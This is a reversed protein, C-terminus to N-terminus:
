MGRGMNGTQTGSAVNAREVSRQLWQQVFVNKQMETLGTAKSLFAAVGRQRYLQARQDDVLALAESLFLNNFIDAYQSPLPDWSYNAAYGSSTAEVVGAANAVTLVTATCSVVTFSGNNLANTCNTIVATSGVPFSITDFTGTYATNGAVAAAVSTINFPGFMPSLKQYTVTVTYIKDPVGLFRFTYNLVSAVISSLEVSVASPRQQFSSKALASNNYVDKIEYVNGDDDTLSVKEVFALDSFTALLYDQTGVVTPFTVEKRNFFWTLPPNLISSRIMSAISVAPEQTLGVTLPSYQIYPQAWNITKTLTWSM